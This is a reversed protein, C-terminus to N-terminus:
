MVLFNDREEHTHTFVYNSRLKLSLELISEQCEQVLVSTGAEYCKTSTMNGIDERSSILELLAFLLDPKSM